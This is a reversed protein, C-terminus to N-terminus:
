GKLLTRKKQQNENQKSKLKKEYDKIEQETGEIEVTSGDDLVVKKRIKLAM